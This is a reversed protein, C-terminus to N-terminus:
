TKKKLVIQEAHKDVIMDYFEQLAKYEDAAFLSKNIKLQHIVNIANDALKIKYSFLGAEGPLSYVADKPTEEVTYEEPLHYKASFVHKRNYNFDIPYKRDKLKFPNEDIQGIAMPNFYLLDGGDMVNDLTISAGRKLSKSDDDIKVDEIQAFDFKEETTEVEKGEAADKIKRRTNSAAYGTERSKMIGAWQSDENLQLDLSVASGFSATPTLDVWQTAGEKILRGKDNYCRVPLLEMPLDKETADLLYNKGDINAQVIVYDFQRSSPFYPNLLGNSKTSLIVPNAAIGAKTVMALLLMNIDAVNGKGKNYTDKMSQSTYKNSRKNWVVKEKLHDYLLAVKEKDSTTNKILEKVTSELFKSKSGKLQGGFASSELMTENIEEWTNTYNQLPSNPLNVSALEFDVQVMYNNINSTYPEAQLAPMNEAVWKNRKEVYDIRQTSAKSTVQYQGSRSVSNLIIADNGTTEENVTVYELDYGRFQKNYFFWEPFATNFESYRVPISHQFQWDVFNWVFPSITTYELEIISGDKIEPMAIKKNVQNDHFREEILDNKEVKTSIIKGGYSNYTIAKFKNLKERKNNVEWLPIVQDAWKAGAKDLIKIRTHRKFRIFFEQQGPEYYLEADGRDYLIVAHANSDLQYKDWTFDAKDIKGFKVKNKQAFSITLFPLFLLFLLRKM